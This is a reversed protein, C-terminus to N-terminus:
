DLMKLIDDISTNVQGFDISEIFKEIFDSFNNIKNNSFDEKKCQCSCPTVTAQQKKISDIIERNMRNQYEVKDQKNIAKNIDNMISNKISEVTKIPQDDPIFKVLQWNEAFLEIYTEKWPVRGFRSEVYLYPASMKDYKDPFQVKIVVDSKWEPLRMGYYERNKKGYNDKEFKCLLDFIKGFRSGAVIVRYKNMVNFNCM